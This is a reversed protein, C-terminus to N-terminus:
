SATKTRILMDSRSRRRKRFLVKYSKVQVFILRFDSFLLHSYLWAIPALQQMFLCEFKVTKHDKSRTPDCNALHRNDLTIVSYSHVLPCMVYM